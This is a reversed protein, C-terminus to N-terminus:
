EWSDGFGDCFFGRFKRREGERGIEAIEEKDLKFGWTKEAFGELRERRGSTTILVMGQDLVWRLLVLGPETGYKKAIREVVEDVPGPSSTTLPTLAAFAHVPIGVSACYARLSTRPLYPHVELQNVIPKITATKMITEIDSQSFHSVGVSRALGKAHCTEVTKWTAQLAQESGGSSFPEHLLYLDVYDTQLKQLSERLSEEVVDHKLAKTTIFLEERPIGSEKIAIGVEAETQYYQACDLHRYGLELAVKFADVAKRDIENENEKIWATGTGYGLSQLSVGSPLKALPIKSM